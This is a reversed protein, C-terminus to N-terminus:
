RASLFNFTPGTHDRLSNIRLYQPENYDVLESPMSLPVELVFLKFLSQGDLPLSNLNWTEALKNYCVTRAKCRSRDQETWRLASQPVIRHKKNDHATNGAFELIKVTLYKKQFLGRLTTFLSLSDYVPHVGVRQAYNGKELLCHIRGIRFQLDVRASCSQSTGTAEGGAARGSKSKWSVKGSM